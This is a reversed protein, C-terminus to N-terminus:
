LNSEAVGPGVPAFLFMGYHSDYMNGDGVAKVHVWMRRAMDRGVDACRPDRALNTLEYPDAELDYLEDFDFGNFVYKYRRTWVIRQTWFFRQGHFEAYVDDPWDHPKQGKLLPALSRGQCGSLEGCGTMDLITPALDLTSVLQDCTEGGVGVGPWKIILPIRYGEEFPFVGLCMLGHAGMMIGHDNTYIVITNDAQETEELAQLARAIQDDILSCSGYYRAIAQAYHVWDMDEWISRMRQYINPKDALDDCFNGPKEIEAPDYRSYYSVPVHHPDGPGGTSVFACWPADKNAARRIFDVCKSYLYYEPTGEPTEDYVGCVLFDRYGPRHIAHRLVYNEPQPPLGLRKRYEYFGPSPHGGGHVEYEDFGFRELRNSREVHWKGFYGLHYGARQLRQSWLELSTDFRARYEPVTHTCDVM